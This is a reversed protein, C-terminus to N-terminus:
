HISPNPPSFKRKKKLNHVSYVTKKLDILHSQVIIIHDDIM